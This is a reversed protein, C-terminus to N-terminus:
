IPNIILKLEPNYKELEIRLYEMGTEMNFIDIKLSHIV